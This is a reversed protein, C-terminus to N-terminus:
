ERVHDEGGGNKGAITPDWFLGHAVGRAGRGAAAAEFEVHVWAEIGFERHYAVGKEDRKAEQEGCAM